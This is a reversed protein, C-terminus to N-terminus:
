RATAGSVSESNQLWIDHYQCIAGQQNLLDDAYRLMLKNPYMEPAVAQVAYFAEFPEMGHQVFIAIAAATSRSIGAHCHVLVRDEPCFSSSFALIEELHSLQPIVPACDPYETQDCDHFYLQLYHERAVIGARCEPDILGIARTAWKDIVSEAKEIDCITLAFM